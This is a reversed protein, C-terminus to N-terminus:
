PKFGIHITTSGNEVIVSIEPTHLNQVGHRLPIQVFGKSDTTVSSTAKDKQIQHRLSHVSLERAEAFARASLGSTKFDEIIQKWDFVQSRKM